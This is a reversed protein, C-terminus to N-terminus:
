RRAERRKPPMEVEFSCKMDFTKESTNKDTGRLDYRIGNEAFYGDGSENKVGGLAKQLANITDVDPAVGSFDVRKDRDFKLSTLTVEPPLNESVVRLVELAGTAHDSYKRVARVKKNMTNVETYRDYHAKRMGEIRDTAFGYGVPVLFMAAVAVLWIGGAVAIYKRFKRKFRSEELAEKWSEPLANSAGEEQSRECIAALVEQEGPAAIRRVPALGASIDPADGVLVIEDITAKGCVDEAGLFSLLLEKRADQGAPVSRLSALIEGDFVAIDIFGEEPVIVARRGRMSIQPWLVRLAGIIKMDIRTVFLKAADLAEAIDDCSEEPFATALVYRCSETEMLTECSVSLQGDPFPSMAALERGAIEDTEGISEAPIRLIKALFRGLPLALVAERSGTASFVVSARGESFVAIQPKEVM